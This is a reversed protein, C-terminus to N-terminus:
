AAKELQVGRGTVADYLAWRGGMFVVNVRHSVTGVLLPCDDREVFASRDSLLRKFEEVTRATKGQLSFFTKEPPATVTTNKLTEIAAAELEEQSKAPAAPKAPEATKIGGTRYEAVLSKFVKKLAHPGRKAKKVHKPHSLAFNVVNRLLEADGSCHEDLFRQLTAAFGQHKGRTMRTKKGASGAIAMHYKTALSRMADSVHLAKLEQAVPLNAVIVMYRNCNQRGKGSEMQVWGVGGTVCLLKFARRVTRESTGVAAAITEPDVRVWHEDANRQLLYFVVSIHIDKVGEPRTEPNHLGRVTERFQKDNM